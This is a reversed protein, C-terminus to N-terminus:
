PEQFVPDLPDPGTAPPPAPPLTTGDPGAPTSTDDRLRDLLAQEDPTLPAADTTGPDGDESKTDMATDPIPGDVM